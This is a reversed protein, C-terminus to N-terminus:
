QLGWSFLPWTPDRVTLPTVSTVVVVLGVVVVVVALGVAVVVEVVILVDDEEVTGSVVVDVSGPAVDVVAAEVVSEFPSAVVM